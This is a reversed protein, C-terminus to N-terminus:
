SRRFILIPVKITLTEIPQTIVESVAQPVMPITSLLIALITAVISLIISDSKTIEARLNADKEPWIIEVDGTEPFIELIM